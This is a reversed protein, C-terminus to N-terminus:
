CHSFLQTSAFFAYKNTRIRGSKNSFYMGSTHHKTINDQPRTRELYWYDIRCKGLHKWVNMRTHCKDVNIWMSSSAKDGQSGCIGASVLRNEAAAESGSLPISFAGNNWLRTEFLRSINVTEQKVVETVNWHSSVLTQCVLLTVKITM